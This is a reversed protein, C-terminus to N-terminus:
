LLHGLNWHSHAPSSCSSSSRDMRVVQRGSMVIQLTTARQNHALVATRRGGGGAEHDSGRRYLVYVMWVGISLGDGMMYLHLAVPVVVRQRWGSRRAVVQLLLLLWLVVVLRVVVVVM